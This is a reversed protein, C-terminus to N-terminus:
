SDLHEDVNDAIDYISRESDREKQANIKKEEEIKLRDLKNQRAGEAKQKGLFNKAGFLAIIGLIITLIDQLDIKM